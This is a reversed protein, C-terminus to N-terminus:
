AAQILRDLADRAFQRGEFDGGCNRCTKMYGALERYLRQLEEPRDFNYERPPNAAYGKASTLYSEERNKKCHPCEEVTPRFGHKCREM